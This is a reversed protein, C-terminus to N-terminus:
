CNETGIGSLYSAQAEDQAAVLPHMPLNRQLRHDHTKTVIENNKNAAHPPCLGGPAEGKGAFIVRFGETLVDSCIPAVSSNVAV